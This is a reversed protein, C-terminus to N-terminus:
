LRAATRTVRAGQGGGGWLPSRDQFGRETVGSAFETLEAELSAQRQTPEAEARGPPTVGRAAFRGPGWTHTRLSKCAHVASKLRHASPLPVTISVPGPRGPPCPGRRPPRTLFVRSFPSCTGPLRLLPPVLPFRSSLTKGPTPRSQSKRSKGAARLHAPPGGPRVPDAMAMPSCMHAETGETRTGTVNPVDTPRARGGGASPPADAKPPSDCLGNHSCGSWTQTNAWIPGQSQPQLPAAALVPGRAEQHSGRNEQLIAPRGLHAPCLQTRLVARYRTMWVFWRLHADGLPGMLVCVHCFM